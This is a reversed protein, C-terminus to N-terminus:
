TTPTAKGAYEKSTRKQDQCGPDGRLPDGAQVMLGPGSLLAQRLVANMGDQLVAGSEDPDGRFGADCTEVADTKANETMCILWSEGAIVGAAKRM